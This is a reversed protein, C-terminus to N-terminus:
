PKKTGVQRLRKYPMDTEPIYKSYSAMSLYM